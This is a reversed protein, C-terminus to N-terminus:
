AGGESSRLEAELGATRLTRPVLAAHLLAPSNFLLRTVGGEVHSLM